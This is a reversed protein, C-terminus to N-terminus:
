LAEVEEKTWKRLAVGYFELDVINTKGDGIKMRPKEHKDDPDYIVTEGVKPVYTPDELWEAETKHKPSYNEIMDRAEADKYFREVGDFEFSSVYLKDSM